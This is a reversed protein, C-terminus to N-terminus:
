KKKKKGIGLGEGVWIVVTTIGDVSILKAQEQDEPFSFTWDVKQM